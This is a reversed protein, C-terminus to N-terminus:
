KKLEEIREKLQKIERNCKADLAFDMFNAMENYHKVWEIRTLEAEAEEVTEIKEIDIM